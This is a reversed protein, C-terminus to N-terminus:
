ALLKACELNKNWTFGRLIRKTTGCREVWPNVMGRHALLGASSPEVHFVRWGCPDCRKGPAFEARFAM